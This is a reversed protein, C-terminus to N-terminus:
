LDLPKLCITGFHSCFKSDRRKSWKLVEGYQIVVAIIIDYFEQFHLFKKSNKEFFAIVFKKASILCDKKTLFRKKRVYLNSINMFFEYM